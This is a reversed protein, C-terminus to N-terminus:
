VLTGHLKDWEHALMAYVYDDIWQGRDLCDHLFHAERRMGVREMLRWSRENRVDVSACIRHMGLGRFGFGLAAVVAKTAYGRGWHRPNLAFGIEAQQDEASTITLQCDGIMKGNMVIALMLPVGPDGLRVTGQEALIAAPSVMEPEWFQYRAVEEDSCYESLDHLDDPAVRRIVLPGTAIPLSDFTM